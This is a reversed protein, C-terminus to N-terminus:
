NKGRLGVINNNADKIQAVLLGGTVDHVDQVVEGGAKVMDGLSVDIDDVDVYGIPGGNSNPDLGIEMDGIRYGVYYSSKAYPETDLFENYFTVAKEIDKVPFVLLKVNNAM